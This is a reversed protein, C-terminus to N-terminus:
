ACFYVKVGHTSMHISAYATLTEAIFFLNLTAPGKFPGRLLAPAGVEASVLPDAARM